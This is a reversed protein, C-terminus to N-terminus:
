AFKDYLLSGLLGFGSLTLIGGSIRNLWVLHGEGFSNRFLGAGLCIGIWWVLSGLLVGAVLM